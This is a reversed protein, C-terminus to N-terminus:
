CCDWSHWDDMAGHNSAPPFLYSILWKCGKECILLYATNELLQHHCITSNDDLMVAFLTSFFVIILSWCLMQLLSHLTYTRSHEYPLRIYNWPYYNFDICCMYRQCTWKKRGWVSSASTQTKAQLLVRCTFTTLGPKTWYQKFSSKWFM